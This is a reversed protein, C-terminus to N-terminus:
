NGFLYPNGWDNAGSGKCFPPLRQAGWARAEAVSHTKNLKGCNKDATTQGAVMHVLLQM